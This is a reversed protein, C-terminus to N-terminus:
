NPMVVKVALPTAPLPYDKKAVQFILAAEAKADAAAAKADAEIKFTLETQDPAVKV